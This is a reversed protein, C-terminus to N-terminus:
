QMVVNNIFNRSSKSQNCFCLSGKRAEEDSICHPRSKNELNVCSCVEYEEAYKFDSDAGMRQVHEPFDVLRM